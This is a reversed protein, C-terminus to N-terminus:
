ARYLPRGVPLRAAFPAAEITSTQRPAMPGTLAWRERDLHIAARDASQGQWRALLRDYNNLEFEARAKFEPGRADGGLAGRGLVAFEDLALRARSRAASPDDASSLEGAQALLGELHNWLHDNSM